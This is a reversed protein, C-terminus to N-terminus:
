YIKRKYDNNPDMDAWDRNASWHLYRNRLIRLLKQRSYTEIVLEELTVIEDGKEDVNQLDFPEEKKEIPFSVKPSIEIPIPKINIRLNDPVVTIKEKLLENKDKNQNEELIQKLRKEQELVEDSKFYWPAGENECVYEYLYRKALRLYEDEDISFTSEIESILQHKFYKEGLEEMFQLPIYSYEKRLFRTGTIKRYVSGLTIVNLFGKKIEIQEDNYWYQDILEQRRKELFWSLKNNSTEIEDVIETGNEYAGGIDFHVARSYPGPNKLQLQEVDNGFYHSSGMTSHVLGRVGIRELADMDDFEEYSSVTDYVGIFRVKLELEDLEQLSLIDKSLLYYGLFGYKPLKGDILFEPEVEIGDKDIWIDEYIRVVMDNAYSVSNRYGVLKQTKKIQIDEPRKKGNIEYSFNRAAAAGRSFGFTDVTIKTLKVKPKNM